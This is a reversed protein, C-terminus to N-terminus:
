QSFVCTSYREFESVAFLFNSIVLWWCRRCFGSSAWSELVDICSPLRNEFEKSSSCSLVAKLPKGARLYTLLLGTSCGIGRARAGSFALPLLVDLPPERGRRQLPLSAGARLAGRARQGHPSQPGAGHPGDQPVRAAAPCSCSVAFRGLGRSGQSRRLEPPALRGRGTRPCRWTPRCRSGRPGPCRSRLTGAEGSPIAGLFGRGTPMRGAGPAPPSPCYRSAAGGRQGRGGRAAGAPGAAAAAGAGPPGAPAALPPAAAGSGHPRRRSCGRGERGAFPPAPATRGRQGSGGCPRSRGSAPAGGAAGAATRSRGHPASPGTQSTVARGRHRKQPATRKSLLLFVLSRLLEALAQGQITIGESRSRQSGLLPTFHNWVLRPCSTVSASRLRPLSGASHSVTRTTRRECGTGRGLSLGLWTVLTGALLLPQALCQVECWGSGRDVWLVQRFPTNNSATLSTFM